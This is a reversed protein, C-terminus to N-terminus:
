KAIKAHDKAISLFVDDVNKGTKASVLWDFNINLTDAKIEELRKEDMLDLKNGLVMIKCGPSNNKLYQLDYPINKFTFPRNLDVVYVICDKSEFYNAPVKQQNVEGATDWLKLNVKLDDFELEKENVRVGITGYYKDSFEGHIFRNFLSSKGVGFSGTLIVELDM